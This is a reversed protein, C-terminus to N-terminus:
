QEVLKKVDEFEFSQNYLAIQSIRKGLKRESDANKGRVYM